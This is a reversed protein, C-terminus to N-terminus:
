GRKQGCIEIIYHWHKHGPKDDFYKSKECSIIDFGNNTFLTELQKQTLYMKGTIAQYELDQFYFIGGSKLNDYATKILQDKNVLFHLAFNSMVMDFPAQESHYPKELDTGTKLDVGECSFGIKELEDIDEGDGCGLDLIKGDRPLKNKALNVIDEIM